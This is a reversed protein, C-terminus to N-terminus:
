EGARVRKIEAIVAKYLEANRPSRKKWEVIVSEFAKNAARVDEPGPFVVRRTPDDQLKKILERDYATIEKNYLDAMWQVSHDRIATQLPQSLSEFKQKNMLVVMPVVGLRIFYHWKTVRDYGFDNVVQPSSTAADVTKRAIAEPVETPPIAVPAAGLAKLADSQVSGSARIKKGKLDAVSEIPVASHISFPPTAWAAITVYREFGKIKGSTVLRTFVTTAEALDRFLGPLEMVETDPFRGPTFGPLVLAIDAVEDLVMQAQQVPNRGLAGNPFLEIELAGKTVEGLTAAFQKTVTNHIRERDPSFEAYKLKVVDQAFVALPLSLLLALIARRM